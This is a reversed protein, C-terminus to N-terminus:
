EEKDTTYHARAWQEMLMKCETTKPKSASFNAKKNQYTHFIRQSM